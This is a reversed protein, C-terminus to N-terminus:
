LYKAYTGDSIVIVKAQESVSCEPDRALKVLLRKNNAFIDGLTQGKFDGVDCIAKKANILEVSENTSSHVEKTEIKESNLLPKTENPEIKPSLFDIDNPVERDDKPMHVTESLRKKKREENSPVDPVMKKTPKKEEKVEILKEHDKSEMEKLLDDFEDCYFELGIGADTLARSAASGKVLAEFSAELKKAEYDNTVLTELSRKAFGYGAYNTEDSWYLFAEVAIDTKTREVVKFTIRMGPDLAKALMKKMNLNLYMSEEGYHMVKTALLPLNDFIDELNKANVGKESIMKCLLTIYHNSLVHNNKM